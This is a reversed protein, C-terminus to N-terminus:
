TNRRLCISEQILTLASQRGKFSNNAIPQCNFFATNNLAFLADQLAKIQTGTTESIKFKLNKDFDSDRVGIEDLEFGGPLSLADLFEERNPNKKLYHFYIQLTTLNNFTYFSIPWLKAGDM